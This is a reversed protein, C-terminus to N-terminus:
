EMRALEANRKDRFWRVFPDVINVIAITLLGSWDKQYVAGIVQEATGDPIQIGFLIAIGFVFSLLYIWFNASGFIAAPTLKPKTRIFNIIPMIVSVVLIGIVAVFGPGSLATTIKTALVEANEPFKIGILALVSLFFILLRAWFNLNSASFNKTTSNMNKFLKYSHISQIAM